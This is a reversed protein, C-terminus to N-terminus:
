NDPTLPELIVVWQLGLVIPEVMSAVHLAKVDLSEGGPDGTPTFFLEVFLGHFSTVVVGGSEAGKLKSLLHGLEFRREKHSELEVGQDAVCIVGEHERTLRDDDEVNPSKPCAVIVDNLHGVNISKALFRDICISAVGLEVQM